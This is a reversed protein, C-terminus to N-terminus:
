TSALCCCCCITSVQNYFTYTLKQLVTELKEKTPLEYTTNKQLSDGDTQSIISMKRRITTRMFCGRYLDLFWNISFHYMRDFLNLDCAINYLLSGRKAILSYTRKEENIENQTKQIAEVRKLITDRKEKFEIITQKSKECNLIVHFRNKLILYFNDQLSWLEKYYKSLNRIHLVRQEEIVPNQLAAAETALLDEMSEESISFNVVNARIYVEAAFKPYSKNCTMYLKFSSKKQDDKSSEPLVDDKQDKPLGRFFVDEISLAFTEPIDRVLIPRNTNLADNITHMLRTDAHDCIILNNDREKAIIWKTALQQPDIILPWRYGTEILVANQVSGTFICILLHSLVM